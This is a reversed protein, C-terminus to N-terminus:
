RAAPTAAARSDRMTVVTVYRVDDLRFTLRRKAPHSTLLAIGCAAERAGQSTAILELAQAQCPMRESIRLVRVLRQYRDPDSKAILDLMGPRDLDVFRYAATPVPMAAFAAASLAIAALSM